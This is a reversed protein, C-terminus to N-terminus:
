SGHEAPGSGGRALKRVVETLSDARGVNGPFVVYDLAPHTAENGLRWVPVGALIQGRVLAKRVGLGKTALESSTIGGKAIITRPRVTIRQLTRTLGNAVRAGIDLNEAEAEARILNRSTYIVVDSGQALLRDAEDAVRRTCAGASADDLLESVPLEIGHVGTTALLHELQQTSLPVYSGVIILAGSRASLDFDAAELMARKTLGARSVVFSAASRYLYSKGMAEAGLLGLSVVELDRYTTANVIVAKADSLLLRDRVRDPGGSRIDDLGISLVEAEPIRGGTKEEVWKRLNSNRYGFVADQAFPTEHVPLYSGDQLLYHTDDFTIRGGEFFAPVIVHADIQQGLARALADVEAPYHGRLTSDSRSIVTFARGLAAAAARLNKALETTLDIAAEESLSRSNTLVYFLASPDRFASELTAVSWDTFVPVDHVTQTGTPDDDLVVIKGKRRELM